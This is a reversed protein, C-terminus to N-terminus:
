YKINKENLYDEAKQKNKTIVIRWGDYEVRVSDMKIVIPIPISDGIHCMSNEIVCYHNNFGIYSYWGNKITDCYGQHHEKMWVTDLGITMTNNYNQSYSLISIFVFLSLIILKKM